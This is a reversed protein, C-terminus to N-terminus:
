IIRIFTLTGRNKKQRVLQNVKEDFSRGYTLKRQESQQMFCFQRPASPSHTSGASSVVRRTM